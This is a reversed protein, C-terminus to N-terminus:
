EKPARGTRGAEFVRTTVNLGGLRKWPLVYNAIQDRCVSVDIFWKADYNQFCRTIGLRGVHVKQALTHM